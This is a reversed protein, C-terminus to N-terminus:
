EDDPDEVCQGIRPDDMAQDLCQCFDQVLPDPLVIEISEEDGKGLGETVNLCKRNKMENIINQWYSKKHLYPEHWEYTFVLAGYTFTFIMQNYEGFKYTVDHEINM